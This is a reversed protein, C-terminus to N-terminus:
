PVLFLWLYWQIDIPWRSSSYLRSMHTTQKGLSIRRSFSFKWKYSTILQSNALINPIPTHTLKKWNLDDWRTCVLVTCASQTETFSYVSQDVQNLPKNRLARSRSQSKNNKKEDRRWCHDPLGSPFYKIFDDWKPSLPIFDEVRCITHSQTEPNTAMQKLIFIRRIASCFM